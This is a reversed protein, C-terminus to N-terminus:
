ARAVGLRASRGAFPLAAALLLLASLTLEAPGLGVELRPYAEVSGASALKGAVAACAVTAAAALVRVDHRSPSRRVRAARRGASYGRVELAAAVDVARELSGSLAARAVALRGPPHPRCRAADGMRTADRALVPVLRTALAATLASRYSVRRLSRLLEDPDVCAAFLAFPMVFAAVRLGALGGAALAELTIDFRHGLVSGGRILLTNGEAYVLPNIVTVLLALPVSLRAASAIESGVGAALGAGAVAAIVAVVVVPHDYLACVLALSVCLATTSGAGAAHLPSPRPRYIPVLSM